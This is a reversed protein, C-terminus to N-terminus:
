VGAKETEEESDSRPMEPYADESVFPEPSSSPHPETPSSMRMAWIATGVGVLLVLGILLGFLLLPDMVADVYTYNQLLM